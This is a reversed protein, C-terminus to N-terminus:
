CGALREVVPAMEEAALVAPHRYDNALVLTGVRLARTALAAATLIVLPGHRGDFHDTMVVSSYGADEGM